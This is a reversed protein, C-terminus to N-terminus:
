HEGEDRTASVLAGSDLEASRRPIVRRAALWELDKETIPGRPQGIARFEIVPAGHRTIVVGEGRMARDILRSLNNKAETVGYSRM